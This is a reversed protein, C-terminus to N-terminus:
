DPKIGAKKILESWRRTEAAQHARLDEQTGGGVTGGQDEVWKRTDPQDLAATIDGNLRAVIDPPTGAPVYIGWWANVAFGKLGAAEAVTPIDPLTGVRDAGTVALPRAAGSQVHPLMVSSNHFLVEYHGALLDTAMQASSKYPIPQMKLGTMEMLLEASLHPTTGIGPHGYRLKNPNRKGYAILEDLTKAPVSPHVVLLNPMSMALTVPQFDKVPDYPLKMLSGGVSMAGITSILLTYGDPAQKAAKETGIIGGLGVANEVVVPQKWKIGLDNALRRSIADPSSGTAAAVILKVPHAPFGQAAGDTQAAASAAMACTLLAAALGRMKKYM